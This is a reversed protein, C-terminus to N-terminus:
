SRPRLMLAGMATVTIAPYFHSKINLFINWLLVCQIIFLSSVKDSVGPALLKRSSRECTLTDTSTDENILFFLLQIIILLIVNPAIALCDVAASHCPNTERDLCPHLKNIEPYPHTTTLNFYFEEIVIKNNSTIIWMICFLSHM